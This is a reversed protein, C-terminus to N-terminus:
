YEFEYFPESNDNVMNLNYKERLAENVPSVLRSINENSFNYRICRKSTDTNNRIAIKAITELTPCDEDSSYGGTLFFVPADIKEMLELTTNYKSGHHSIKVAEFKVKGNFHRNLSENVTKAMADGLFLVKRDNCEWYFAMSAQNPLSLSSENANVNFAADFEEESIVAQKASIWRGTFKRKKKEEIKLLLEYTDEINDFQRDPFKFGTFGAFKTKFLNDLDQLAQTTPSVFVLKGWKGNEDLCIPDTLNTIPSKNWVSKLSDDSLIRSVLSVSTSASIKSTTTVPYASPLSNIRCKTPSSLTIKAPNDFPMLCCNYLIRGVVLKKLDKDNLIAIIGDLHDGDIHTAIILDLRLGLDHIIFQKIETSLAGCDIMIHFSDDSDEDKLVFFICDGYYQRNKCPFTRIQAKM